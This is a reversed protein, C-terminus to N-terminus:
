EFRFAFLEADNLVFRLRVPRGELSALDSGREWRAVGSTEEDILRQSDTAAFGSIPQGEANQLEVRVSGKPGTRYNLVLKSGSFSLPRTIAEGGHEQPARRVCV